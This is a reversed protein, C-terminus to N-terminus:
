RRQKLAMVWATITTVIISTIALFTASTLWTGYDSALAARAGTLLQYVPNALNLTVLVGPLNDAPFFVGGLLFMPSFVLTSVYNISDINKVSIAVLLGLASYTIAGLLILVVVLAYRMDVGGQLVALIILPFCSLIIGISASWLIQFLVLKTPTVPTVLIADINKQVVMRVWFRFMLLYATSHIVTMGIVGVALFEPYNEVGARGAGDFGVTFAFLFFIPQVIATCLQPGLASRILKSELAWYGGLQIFTARNM